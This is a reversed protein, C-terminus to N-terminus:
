IGRHSSAAGSGWVAPVKVKGERGAGRGLLQVWSESGGIIQALYSASVNKGLPGCWVGDSSESGKLGLMVISKFEDM